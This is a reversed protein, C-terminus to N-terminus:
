KVSEMGLVVSWRRRDGLKKKAIMEVLLEIYSITVLMRSAKRYVGSRATWYKTYRAHDSPPPLTPTTRRPVTPAAAPDRGDADSSSSTPSPKSPAPIDREGAAAFPHPPLSLAPDLHKSLLSDHYGSVVNLLAYVPTLSGRAQMYGWHSPSSM